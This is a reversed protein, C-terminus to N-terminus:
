SAATGERRAAIEDHRTVSAPVGAIAWDEPAVLWIGGRVRSRDAGLQDVVLDTFGSLLAQRQQAPRGELLVVHFFPAEGAGDAVLHGGVCALAPPHEQAFARVRDVPCQLVEAFLACSRRLLEAVAQPEHRGAVLHYTVIPM